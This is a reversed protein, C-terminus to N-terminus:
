DFATFLTALRELGDILGPGPRKVLGAPIEYVHGSKVAALRDWGDRTGLDAPPTSGPWAAIVIIDPDFRLVTAADLRPWEVRARGGLNVGGAKTILDDVFSQPGGTYGDPSLELYVLPRVRRRLTLELVAAVRARCRALYDANVPAIGIIAALRAMGHVLADLTHPRMVFVPVGRATLAPASTLAHLSAAVVLDPSLAVVADLDVHKFGGVRPVGRLEPLDSHEEVGVLRDLAGLASLCETCAPALSVIRGAGRDLPM